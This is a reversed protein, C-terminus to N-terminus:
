SACDRDALTRASQAARNRSTAAKAVGALRAVWVDSAQPITQQTLSPKQQQVGWRAETLPWIGSLLGRKLSASNTEEHGSLQAGAPRDEFRSRLWKRAPAGSVNESSGFMVNGSRTTATWSRASPPEDAGRAGGMEVLKQFSEGVSQNGVLPAAKGVRRPQASQHASTTDFCALANM